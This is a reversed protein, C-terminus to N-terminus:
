RINEWTERHVEIESGDDCTVTIADKALSTVEGLKGNYYLKEQSSDNKVFMVRAGVKLTLTQDMPFMSEPFTDKVTAQYTFERKNIRALERQNIADVKSNHTSLTIPLPTHDINKRSNKLSLERSEQM